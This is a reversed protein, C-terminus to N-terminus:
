GNDEGEESESTTVEVYDNIHGICTDLANEANSFAEDLDLGAFDDTDWWTIVLDEDLNDKYTTQLLQIAEKVTTIM